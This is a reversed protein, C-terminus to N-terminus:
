HEGSTDAVASLTQQTTKQTTKQTLRNAYALTAQALAIRDDLTKMVTQESCVDLGLQEISPLLSQDSNDIMFGDLLDGYYDAVGIATAPINLETMMKAAPGKIAIGAVIPSIAIVPAASNRMADRVGALRLIPEVSVFPNSPCIIIAALEDSALLDMLAQQPAAQEIGDFYFDSIAPQCQERVFYEQFALEGDATTVKTRVADDSMPIIRHSVGLRRCLHATVASLSEGKALRQSRELHTALDRDGLRFWTDGGLTELADMANWSEGALGWGLAKNNIDALTYMVTDLDPSISLGLHEFDDATNAAIILQEPSLIKSLGLALKAGGVGGSLALIKKGAPLSYSKM